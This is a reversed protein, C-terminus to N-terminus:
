VQDGHRGVRRDRDRRRSASRARSRRDARGSRTRRRAAAAGTGDVVTGGRILVTGIHEDAMQNEKPRLVVPREIGYGPRPLGCCPFAVVRSTRLRRTRQRPPAGYPHDRRSRHRGTGRVAPATGRTARARPGGSRADATEDRALAREQVGHVSEAVHVVPLPERRDGVLPDDRGHEDDAEGAGTGRDQVVDEGLVGVAPRREGPLRHERRRWGFRGGEVGIRPDRQAAVMGVRSVSVSRSRWNLAMCGM